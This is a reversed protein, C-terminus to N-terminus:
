HPGGRLYFFGTAWIIERADEARPELLFDATAVEAYPRHTFFPARWNSNSGADRQDMQIMHASYAGYIPISLVSAAFMLRLLKGRPPTVLLFILCAASLFREGINVVDGVIQPTLLFAAFLTAATQKAARTIKRDDASFDQRDRLSVLVHVVLCLVFIINITVGAWYVIQSSPAFVNGDLSEFAQFPGLKMLTYPKYELFQLVGRVTKEASIDLSSIPPALMRGAFYWLALIASPLVPASRILLTRGQGRLSQGANFVPLLYVFFYLVMFATYIVFHSFFIVISTGGHGLHSLPQRRTIFYLYAWLIILAIQYNINGTWFCSSFVFLMLFVLTIMPRNLGSSTRSTLFALSAGAMLYGILLVRATAVPSMVLGLWGMIFQAISNPVPYPFVGFREVFEPVSKILNSLIYGQYVWGPFDQLLPIRSVAMWLLAFLLLVAAPASLAAGLIPRGHSKRTSVSYSVSDKM